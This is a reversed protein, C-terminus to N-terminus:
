QVNLARRILRSILRTEIETLHLWVSIPSLNARGILRGITGISSVSSLVSAVPAASNCNDILLQAEGAIAAVPSESM